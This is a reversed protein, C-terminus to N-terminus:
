YNIYDKLLERFLSMYAYNNLLREDQEFENNYFIKKAAAGTSAIPFVVAEKHLEKFMKYEIEVGLMGGIFIGAKFRHSTLMKKRMTDLSAEESGMNDTLVINEIHKNDNPFRDIYFKSQYLTIHNQADLKLSNLVFRILPTIAPHGGWVMQTKPIVVSALARVSDRIAVIDATGFYDPDKKPDPISASLFIM